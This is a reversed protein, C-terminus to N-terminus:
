RRKAETLPRRLIGMKQLHSYIASSSVQYLSSLQVASTGDNYEQVIKGWDVDKRTMAKGREGHCDTQDSTRDEETAEEQFPYSAQPTQQREEHAWRYPQEIASAIQQPVASQFAPAARQPYVHQSGESPIIFLLSM